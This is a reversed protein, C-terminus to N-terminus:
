MLAAAVLNFPLMFINTCLLWYSTVGVLLGTSNEGFGPAALLRKATRGLFLLLNSCDRGESSMLAPSFM